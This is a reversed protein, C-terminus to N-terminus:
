PTINLPHKSSPGSRVGTPAALQRRGAIDLECLDLMGIPWGAPRLCRAPTGHAARWALASVRRRPPPRANVRAAANAADLGLLHPSDPIQGGVRIVLVCVLRDSLHRSPVLAARRARRRKLSCPTVRETQCTPSGRTQTSNSDLDTTQPCVLRSIETM